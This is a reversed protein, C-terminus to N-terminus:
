FQHENDKSNYINNIKNLTFNIKTKTLFDKRTYNFKNELVKNIQNLKFLKILRCKVLKNINKEQHKYQPICFTNKNLYICDFMILGGSCIVTQSSYLHNYFNSKNYFKFNKKFKFIKQYKNEFYFIFNDFKKNLLINSTKKTYNNKDFGGFFIFIKKKINIKKLKKFFSPIINYEFGSLNKNNNFKKKWLLSNIKLNYNDSKFNTDDFLIIKKHYEKLKKIDLNKLKSM